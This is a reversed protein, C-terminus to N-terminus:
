DASCIYGWSNHSLTSFISCTHCLWLSIFCLFTCCLLSLLAWPTFVSLFAFSHSPHTFWHLHLLSVPVPNQSLSASLSLPYGLMFTFSFVPTRILMCTLLLAHCLSLSHHLLPHCFYSFWISFISFLKGEDNILLSVTVHFCVLLCPLFTVFAMTVVLFEWYFLHKSIAKLKTWWASTTLTVM